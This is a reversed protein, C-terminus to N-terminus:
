GQNKGEADARDGERLHRRLIRLLERMAAPSRHVSHGSRVIMESAAGDLHSSSYPVVGDSGGAHDAQDKDGIISHYVVGEKIPSSGLARIFSSDPDLDNLGTFTQRADAGLGGISRLREVEEEDDESLKLFMEFFVPVKDLLTQPLHIIRSGLRAISMQAMESGKHPVAMFVARHVFPLAPLVAYDEALELEEPSLKSCLEDWTRQTVQELIYHPDDQLLTRTVLGGMSHGVLVMRDFNARTEPTTALEERAALLAKRLNGASALVPVGSSYSYFWFQYRKRIMPDNKLSNIMQVWTNPSSMLGHIFVVPIKGPQYPEVLYLGSNDEQTDSELMVSLLNRDPLDNLFCALPTSFDLALPWNDSSMSDLEMPVTEQLSTDLYNLRVKLNHSDSETVELTLTVPITMGKPTKLSKHFQQPVVRGVLPIGLGSQRNKQMLAKVIYDSCLTFEEVSKVPVSLRYRPEEFFYRRGELDSLSFSDNALLKHSKLYRFIGHCSDNYIEMMRFASFNYSSVDTDLLVFFAKCSYYLASLQCRIATEEDKEKAAISNCFDAAIRLFKPDESIMYYDNLKHLTGEPDKTFDEQEMNGRLFNESEFSLGDRSFSDEHYYQSKESASATEVTVVRSSFMSCSTLLLWAAAMAPLAIQRKRFYGSRRDVGIKKKM